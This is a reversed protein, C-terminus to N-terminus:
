NFRISISIPMSSTRSSLRRPGPAPMWRTRSTSSTRFCRSRCSSDGAGVGAPGVIENPDVPARQETSTRGGDKGFLPVKPDCFQYKAPIRPFCPQETGNILYFALDSYADVLIAGEVIGATILLAPGLGELANRLGIRFLAQRLGAEGADVTIREALPGVEARFGYSPFSSSPLQSLRATEGASYVSMNYASQVVTNEFGLELALDVFTAGFPDLGVPDVDSVPNDGVYAYTNTGGMVGIPDSQTFRGQAPSYWRNRMYDLGGGDRMVGLASLNFRIRWWRARASRSELRCTRMITSWRALASTLETTNGVGDFQYYAPGAADVRSTLGIGHVFHTQLDGSGGYEGVVDGLGFPDVLYETRVGNLTSAIRNGLVDYEYTRTGGPTVQSLLRGQVDYEFSEGGSASAVSVLNGAADFSQSRAALPRTSISTM